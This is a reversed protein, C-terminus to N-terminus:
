CAGSRAPLRGSGHLYRLVGRLHLGDAGHLEPAAERRAGGRLADLDVVSVRRCRKKRNVCGSSSGIPERRSWAPAYEAVPWASETMWTDFATVIEREAIEHATPPVVEPPWRGHVLRLLMHIAARHM